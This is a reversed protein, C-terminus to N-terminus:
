RKIGNGRFMETAIDGPRTYAVGDPCYEAIWIGPFCVIAATANPAFWSLSHMIFALDAKSEKAIM